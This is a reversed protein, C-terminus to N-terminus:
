QKTANAVLWTIFDNSATAGAPFRLYKYNYEANWESTTFNFIWPTGGTPEVYYLINNFAVRIEKYPKNTSTITAGASFQVTEIIAAKPAVLVDNLVWTGGLTPIPTPGPEPTVGGGGIDTVVGNKIIAAPQKSFGSASQYYVESVGFDLTSLKDSYMETVNEKASPQCVVTGNAFENTKANFLLINRFLIGTSGSDSTYRFGCFIGAKGQGQFDIGGFYRMSRADNEDICSKIVTTAKTVIDYVLVDTAAYRGLTSGTSGVGILYLKNLLQLYTNPSADRDTLESEYILEDIQEIKGSALNYSYVLSCVAVLYLKGDFSFVYGSGRTGGKYRAVQTWVNTELDYKLPIEYWFQRNTGEKVVGGSAVFIYDDSVYLGQVEWGLNNGSPFQPTVLSVTETEPDYYAIGSYTYSSPRMVFYLKNDKAFYARSIDPTNLTNAGYSFVGTEMDYKTVKQQSYGSVLFHLISGFRIGLTSSYSQVSTQTAEGQLGGAEGDALYYDSKILVKSVDGKARKIWLGNQATPQTEQVFLNLGSALPVDVNNYKVSKLAKNTDLKM